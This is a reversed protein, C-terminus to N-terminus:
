FVEHGNATVLVMHEWRIGGWEPYYLGPEVTVIMGPKFEGNAKPSVSPGEHTELGIGHGLAHTFHDAVGYAEFVGRAVRYAEAISEGPQIVDIARQQAEQTQELARKFEDSPSNGVWFTRTQDSCYDDLRCGKDLLVSCNDTIKRDGPIAHPLAGNTDVAAITSFSLESAGQDRYLKEVEWALEKETMGPAAIKQAQEFVKHNLACSRRMIDIEAPEKIYRLKEVLGSLPKLESKREVLRSHFDFSVASSEFGVPGPCLEQLFDGMQEHAPPRYIFIKDEDWLRKAADHYRSDTLLWDGAKRTILLMGASENCQPNHLEFGSLYYRNAAHSVLLADVGKEELTARLKDRRATYTQTNM